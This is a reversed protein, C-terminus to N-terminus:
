GHCGGLIRALVAATPEGLPLNYKRAVAVMKTAYECHFAKNPPLWAQGEYGKAAGPMKDSKSENTPGDVALLNAPDSAFNIRKQQPWDAAGLDFSASLPIIHDIQVAASTTEGRTFHITKGTYPDHLIGSMVTHDPCARNDGYTIDTLDRSLINERTTCGDGCMAVTCNDTWADGFDARRYDDRHPRQPITWIGLTKDYSANDAPKPGAPSSGAIGTSHGTGTPAPPATGPTRTGTPAPSPSTVTRTGTPAASASTDPERTGTPAPPETTSCTDGTCDTVRHWLDALGKGGGSLLLAAIAVAVVVGWIGGKASGKAM